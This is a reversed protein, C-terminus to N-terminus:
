AFGGTEDNEFQVTIDDYVLYEHITVLASLYTQLFAYRRFVSRCAFVAADM